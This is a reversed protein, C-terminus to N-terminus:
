GRALARRTPEALPTCAELHSACSPSFRLTRPHALTFHLHSTCVHPPASGVKTIAIRVLAEVFDEFALQTLKVRSKLPAENLVRMRSWVFTLAVERERFDLDHYLQLHAM